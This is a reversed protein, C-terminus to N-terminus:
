FNEIQLPYRGCARATEMIMDINELPTSIPIDCSVSVIFGKESDYGKRLQEKVEERVM